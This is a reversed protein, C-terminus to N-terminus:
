FFCMSWVSICFSCGLVDTRRVRNSELMIGHQTKVESVFNKSWHTKWKSIISIKLECSVNGAVKLVAM